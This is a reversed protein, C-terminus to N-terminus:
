SVTLSYIWARKISDQKLSANDIRRRIFENSREMIRIDFAVLGEAVHIAYGHERGGQAVIVGDGECQDIVAEIRISREAIKPTKIQLNPQKTGVRRSRAM